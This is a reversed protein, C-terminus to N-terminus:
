NTEIIFILSTLSYIYMFEFNTKKNCVFKSINRIGFIRFYNHFILKCTYECNYFGIKIIVILSDYNDILKIHVINITTRNSTNDQLAIDRSSNTCCHIITSDSYNHIYSFSSTSTWLFIISPFTCTTTYVVLLLVLFDLLTTCRKVLLSQLIAVRKRKSLLLISLM